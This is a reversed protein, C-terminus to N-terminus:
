KRFIEKTFQDFVEKFYKLKEEYVSIEARTTCLFKSVCLKCFKKNIIM